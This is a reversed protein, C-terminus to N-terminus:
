NATCLLVFVWRIMSRQEFPVWHSLFVFGDRRLSSHVQMCLLLMQGIQVTMQDTVILPTREGKEQKTIDGRGVFAIDKGFNGKYVWVFVTDYGSLVQIYM